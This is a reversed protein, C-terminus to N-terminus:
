WVLAALLAAVKSRLTLDASAFALVDSTANFMADLGSISYAKERCTAWIHQTYAIAISTALCTKALFAFATGFRIKWEQRDIDWASAAIDTPMVKTGALSRYYCHHGVALAIGAIFLSLMKAPALWYIGWKVMHAPRNSEPAPTSHIHKHFPSLASTESSSVAVYKLDVM